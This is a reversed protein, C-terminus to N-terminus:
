FTLNLDAKIQAVSPLGTKGKSVWATQIWSKIAAEQIATIYPPLQSKIANYVGDVTNAPNISGTIGSSSTSKTSLYYIVAAVLLLVVILINM